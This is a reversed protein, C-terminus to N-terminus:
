PSTGCQFPALLITQLEVITPLRWDCHGAFGGSQTSGVESTCNGVGTAGGNLGALFTLFADGDALTGPSPGNTCTFLAAVCHLGPCGSGDVKKEWQLGTQNDTVTGDGNDM